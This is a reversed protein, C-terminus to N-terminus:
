KLLLLALSLRDNVHLKSFISSIHAKVTRISIGMKNSIAENTLGDLIYKVIEQEKQTLRKLIEKSDKPLKKATSKVLASTLEPYTWIKSNKVAKIMNEYNEKSIMSNGYAKVGHSILMKGTAIAPVRELVISYKPTQNNQLLKNFEHSTSDYDVIVLTDPNNILYNFLDDLDYFVNSINGDINEIREIIVEDTSFIVRKM